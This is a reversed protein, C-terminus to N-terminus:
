AVTGTIGGIPNAGNARIAWWAFTRLSGTSVDKRYKQHYRGRMTLITALSLAKKAACVFCRNVRHFFKWGGAVRPIALETVLQAAVACERRTHRTRQGSVTKKVVMSVLNAALKGLTTSAVTARTFARTCCGSKLNHTTGADPNDDICFDGDASVCADDDGSILAWGSLNITNKLSNSPLVFVALGLGLAAAIACTLAVAVAKRRSLSAGGVTEDEMTSSGEVMVEGDFAM